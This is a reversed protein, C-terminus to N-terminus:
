LGRSRMVDQITIETGLLKTYFIAKSRLGMVTATADRYTMGKNVFHTILKRLEEKCMFM